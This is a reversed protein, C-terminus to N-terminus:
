LSPRNVRAAASCARSASPQGIEDAVVLRQVRQLVPHDSKEGRVVSFAGDAGCLLGNGDGSGDAIGAAQQRCKGKARNCPSTRAVGCIGLWIKRLGSLEQSALLVNGIKM